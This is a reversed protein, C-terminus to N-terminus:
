GRVWEIMAVQCSVRLEAEVVYSGDCGGEEPDCCAVIATAGADLDMDIVHHNTKGCYPCNCNIGRKHTSM